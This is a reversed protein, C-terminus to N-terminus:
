IVAFFNMKSYKCVEFFSIPVIDIVSYLQFHFAYTTAYTLNLLTYFMVRLEGVGQFMFINIFIDKASMIGSASLECM